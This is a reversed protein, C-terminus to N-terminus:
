NAGFLRQQRSDAGLLGAVRRAKPAIITEGTGAQELARRAHDLEVVLIRLYSVAHFTKRLWGEVAQFSLGQRHAVFHIQYKLGDSWIPNDRVLTLNPLKSAWDIAVDNPRESVSRIPAPPERLQRTAEDYVRVLDEVFAHAAPTNIQTVLKMAGKRTFEYELGDRHPAGASVGRRIARVDTENFFGSALARKTIRRTDRPRAMGARRGIELDLVRPADEKSDAHFELGEVRLVISSM